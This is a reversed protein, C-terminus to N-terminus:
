QAVVGDCSPGVTANIVNPDMLDFLKDTLEDFRVQDYTMLFEIGEKHLVIGAAGLASKPHAAFEEAFGDNAALRNALMELAVGAANALQKKEEITPQPRALTAPRQAVTATM